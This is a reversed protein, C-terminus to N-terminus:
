TWIDEAGKESVGEAQRCEERLTLFWTECGYPVVPLIKTRRIKSKINKSVFSSSLLNQMLYIYIYKNVAIPNVRPPLLVICM